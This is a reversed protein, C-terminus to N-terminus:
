LRLEPQGHTHATSNGVVVTGSPLGDEVAADLWQRAYGIDFRVADGMSGHDFAVVGEYKSSVSLNRHRVVVRACPSESSLQWIRANGLAAFEAHCGLTIIHIIPISSEPDSRM